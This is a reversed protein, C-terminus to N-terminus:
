QNKNKKHEFWKDWKLLYDELNLEWFTPSICYASIEEALNSFRDEFVKDDEFKDSEEYYIEDICEILDERKLGNIKFCNLWRFLSIVYGKFEQDDLNKLNQYSLKSMLDMKIKEVESTEM